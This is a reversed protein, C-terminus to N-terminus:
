YCAVLNYPTNNECFVDRLFNNNSLIGFMDPYGEDAPYLICLWPLFKLKQEVESGLTSFDDMDQLNSWTDTIIKADDLFLIVRHHYTFIIKCYDIFQQYNEILYVQLLQTETEINNILKM